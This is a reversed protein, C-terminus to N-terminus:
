SQVEGDSEDISDIALRRFYAQGLENETRRQGVAPWAVTEKLEPMVELLQEALMESLRKVAVQRAREQISRVTKMIRLLQARLQVPPSLEGDADDMLEALPVGLAKQWRRLNSLLMDSSPQEQRAVENVSVGLTQSVKHRTIQERRRVEGLRHLRSDTTAPNTPPLVVSISSTATIPAGGLNTTLTTTQLLPAMGGTDVCSVIINM